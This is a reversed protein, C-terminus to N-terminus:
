DSERKAHDTEAIHLGLECILCRNDETKIEHPHGALISQLKRRRSEKLRDSDSVVMMGEEIITQCARLPEPRGLIEVTCLGCDELTAEAKVLGPDSCLAPLYLGVQRAAQMITLGTECEVAKGDIRLHTLAM